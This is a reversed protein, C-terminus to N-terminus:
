GSRGVGSLTKRLFRLFRPDGARAINIRLGSRHGVEDVAFVTGPALFISDRAAAQAFELDSWGDPLQLYTYYGHGPPALTTLGLGALGAALQRAAEDIRGAVRKLHKEYRRNHIMDAILLESFRSSNVVTIMKLEALKDVIEPAAAIYGSRFSASLTKSFTGVFIVNRFQDLAALRVGRAGPLDVFPDDDVVRFGFTEAAQLVGHACALDMSSGTPNQALSQTFFLAPRESAAKARLDELDPGNALRRVGVYRVQAVKLKAFLPYYGPDDVLVTDGPALYRRVILDLAHNAGFTTVIQEPDLAINQARHRAAIMERLGSYGKPSGYGSSDAIAETSAGFTRKPVVGQMWSAPPRGDGVRMEYNQDLQARLLSVSDVADVLHRPAAEGRAERGAAAVTFGAGQRATVLGLSVLRDYAEVATNKSVGFEEAARRISPLRAGVPLAGEEIRRRLDAVIRETKTM